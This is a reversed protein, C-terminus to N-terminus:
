RPYAVVRYFRLPSTRGTTAGNDFYQFKGIGNTPAFSPLNTSVGSISTWAVPPSLNTAWQIQVQDNTAALWTLLTGSLLYPAHDLRASLCKM